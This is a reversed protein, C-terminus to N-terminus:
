GSYIHDRTSNMERLTISKLEILSKPIQQKVRPEHAGSIVSHDLNNRHSEWERHKSIAEIRYPDILRLKCDVIPAPEANLLSKENLVHKLFTKSSSDYPLFCPLQKKETEEGEQYVKKIIDTTDNQKLHMFRCSAMAYYSEPVKRHDEPVVALFARYACIKAMPLENKDLLLHALSLMAPSNEKRASMEYLQQAKDLNKDVAIGDEYMIALNNAAEGCGHNVARQYWYAACLLNKHVVVGEAYRLGLAHEALAVGNNPFEELLPHQPPQAATQEFLRQALNHDKKVGLGRDTLRALNYMGEANGQNAAKEFYKAAQEYDQKVNIDGHEYQHGKIVDSISPDIEELLRYTMRVEEPDLGLNRQLKSLQEPISRPSLKSELHELRLQRGLIQRSEDLAKRIENNTPALALAREFSNIAKEHDSLAAYVKRVRLHGNWWTPWLNRAQKADQLACYREDIQNDIDFRSSSGSQQEYLALRSSSMNSFFIARDHNSVRPLVTANEENIPQSSSEFVSDDKFKDLETDIDGFAVLIAALDAWLRNSEANPISKTAHHAVENRIDKLQKLLTDEHDLQQIEATNLTKPREGYILLATLTTSDWKNSNGNSVSTKQVKTLSIQKNKAVVNTLYNNGCIPTDDWLQGANFQSFRKKFLQRLLVYSRALLLQLKFYNRVDSSISSM